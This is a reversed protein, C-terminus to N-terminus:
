ERDPPLDENGSSEDDSAEGETEEDDVDVDYFDAADRADAEDEKPDRNAQARMDAQAEQYVECCVCDEGGCGECANGYRPM